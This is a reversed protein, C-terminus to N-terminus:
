RPLRLSLRFLYTVEIPEGRLTAPRYRRRQLAQIVAANMYPLGQRVQCDRVLGERTVVCAVEMVGEVERDIAARTYAPDPGSVFVPRAMSAPDFDPRVPPSAPLGGGGAGGVVGGVVPEVGPPPEPAPPEPPGPEPAAEPLAKPQVLQPVPTPAVAAPRPAVKRRPPPAPPAPPAPTALEPRPLPRVLQVPIARPEEPAAQREVAAVIPVLAMVSAVQIASSWAVFSARRALRGARKPNLVEDFM